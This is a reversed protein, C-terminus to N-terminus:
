CIVKLQPHPNKRHMVQLTTVRSALGPDAELMENKTSEPRISDGLNKDLSSVNAPMKAELVDENREECVPEKNM